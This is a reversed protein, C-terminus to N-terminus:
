EFAYSAQFRVHIADHGFEHGPVLARAGDVRWQLNASRGHIGVALSFMSCRNASIGQCATDLRNWIRWTEAHLALRMAAPLSDAQRPLLDPGSLACRLALGRQAPGASLAPGLTGCTGTAACPSTLLSAAECREPMDRWGALAAGRGSDGRLAVDALWGTASADGAAAVGPYALNGALALVEGDAVDAYGCFSALLLALGGLLAELRLM